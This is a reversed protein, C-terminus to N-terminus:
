EATALQKLSFAISGPFEAPKTSSLSCPQDGFSPGSISAQV